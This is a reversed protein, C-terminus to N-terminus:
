GRARRQAQQLKAALRLQENGTARKFENRLESLDVSSREGASPAIGPRQVPPINARSAPNTHANAKAQDYQSAKWILLQARHDRMSFPQGNWADALEQESYGVDKLSKLAAKSVRMDTDNALEPIKALLRDDETKSWAQYRQQDIQRQQDQAQRSAAVIAATRNLHGDIEARRQPNQREILQLAIPLQQSNLGQLEPFSAFLGAISTEAIQAAAQSYAQRTQEAAQYPQEILQRIEPDALAAQVKPSLGSPPADGAEPQPSDIPQPTEAQASQQTDPQPQQAAAVQHRALDVERQLESLNAHVEIADETRHAESLTKAAQEPTLSMREAKLDVRQGAKSGTKWELFREVPETESSGRERTLDNGADMVGQIGSGYTAPEAPTPETPAPKLGHSAEIGAKGTLEETESM